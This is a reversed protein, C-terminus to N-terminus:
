LDSSQAIGVPDLGKTVSRLSASIQLSSTTDTLVYRKPRVLPRRCLFVGGPLHLPALCGARPPQHHGSMLGVRRPQEPELAAFAGTDLGGPSSRIWPRATLSGIVLLACEDGPFRPATPPTGALLLGLLHAGPSGFREPRLPRSTGM